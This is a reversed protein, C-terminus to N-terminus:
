WTLDGKAWGSTLIALGSLKGHSVMDHAYYYKCSSNLGVPLCTVVQWTINRQHLWKYRPHVLYSPHVCLVVCYALLSVGFVSTDNKIHRKENSRTHFKVRCLGLRCSSHGTWHRISRSLGHRLCLWPRLSKPIYQNFFNNSHFSWYHLPLFRSFTLAGGVLDQTWIGDLLIILINSRLEYSTLSTMSSHLLQENMSAWYLQSLCNVPETYTRHETWHNLVCPNKKERYSSLPKDPPSWLHANYEPTIICELTIVRVTSYGHNSLWTQGGFLHHVSIRQDTWTEAYIGIKIKRVDGEM